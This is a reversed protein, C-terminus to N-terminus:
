KRDSDKMVQEYEEISKEFQDPNERYLKAGQRMLNLIRIVHILSLMGMLWGAFSIVSGAIGPVVSGYYGIAFFIATWIAAIIVTSM